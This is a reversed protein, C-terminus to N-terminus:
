SATTCKLPILFILSSANSFYSLSSLNGTFPSSYPATAYKFFRKEAAISSYFNIKSLFLFFMPRAFPDKITSGLNRFRREFKHYSDESKWKKIPEEATTEHSSEIIGLCISQIESITKQHVFLYTNRCFPYRNSTENSAYSDLFLVDKGSRCKMWFSCRYTM